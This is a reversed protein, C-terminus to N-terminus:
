FLGKPLLIDDRVVKDWSFVPILQSPSAPESRDIIGALYALRGVIEQSSYGKDILTQLSVDRDRKSLRRGDWALLLPTHAYEPIPFGLLRGLYIQRPTSCMLDRGRSVTTIGMAADDAVVALQYSAVGDSRRLIFDGCEKELNQRYRGYHEDIFSIEEDPVRLRLSPAKKECLGAAQEGSLKRCTGRYIIDGDTAHPANPAHLEGRSCFCPYVAKMEDLRDILEMYYAYRKSQEYPTYPGGKAGGEDWDLGLFSLDRQAQLIYEERSRSKDLDEIRLVMKGNRSRVSLWALLASFLNGLHLRGSPTPAFRGVIGGDM